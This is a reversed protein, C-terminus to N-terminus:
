GFPHRCPRGARSGAPDLATRMAIVSVQPGLLNQLYSTYLEPDPDATLREHRVAAVVGVVTAWTGTRPNGLTIQKGIADEDTWYRRAM